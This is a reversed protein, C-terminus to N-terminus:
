DNFFINCMSDFYNKRTLVWIIEDYAQSQALLREAVDYNGNEKEIFYLEDINEQMARIVKLENEKTKRM